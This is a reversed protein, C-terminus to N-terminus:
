IISNHFSKIKFILKGVEYIHLVFFKTCGSPAFFIQSLECLMEKCKPFKDPLVILLRNEAERKVTKPIEINLPPSVKKM